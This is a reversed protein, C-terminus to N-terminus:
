GEFLQHDVVLTFTGLERVEDLPLVLDLILKIVEVLHSTYLEVRLIFGLRLAAFGMLLKEDLLHDPHLFVELTLV